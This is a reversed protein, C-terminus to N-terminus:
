LTWNFPKNIRVFETENLRFEIEDSFFFDNEKM